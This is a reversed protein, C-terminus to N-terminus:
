RFYDEFWLLVQSDTLKKKKRLDLVLDHATKGKKNKINPNVQKDLYFCYWADFAIVAHHLATNGKDDVANFDAGKEKLKDIIKKVENEDAYYSYALSMLPTMGDFYGSGTTVDYGADILRRIKYFDTSDTGFVAMDFAKWKSELLNVDVGSNLIMDFAEHKKSILSMMFPSWTKKQGITMSVKKDILVKLVSSWGPYETDDEEEESVLLQSISMWGRGRSMPVNFDVDLKLLATVLTEYHTEVFMEENLVDLSELMTFFLESFMYEIHGQYKRNLDIGKSLFYNLDEKLLESREEPLEYVYSMWVYFVDLILCENKNCTAIETDSFERIFTRYADLLEQTEGYELNDNEWYAYLRDTANDSQAKTLQPLIYLILILATRYRM